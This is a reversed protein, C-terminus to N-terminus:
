AHCLVQELAWIGMVKCADILLGYTVDIDLWIFNATDLTLSIKSVSYLYLTYMPATNRVTRDQDTHSKQM